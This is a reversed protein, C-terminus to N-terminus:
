RRLRRDIDFCASPRSLGLNLLLFAADGGRLLAMVRQATTRRGSTTTRRSRRSWPRSRRCSSTTTRLFSHVCTLGSNLSLQILFLTVKKAKLEAEEPLNEGVEGGRKKMEARLTEAHGRLLILRSWLEESRANLAPDGISSELSALKTQLEDEDTDLAYGRNRLVQVRTALALCRQRLLVHKRRANAARVSTELDHKSLIADLSQNIDHLRSNYNGLAIRQMKLREAVSIFGKAQVPMFDPGPRARFAEEWERPDESPSPKYFPVHAKDVKNYFYYKFETTPLGPNWKNQLTELQEPV